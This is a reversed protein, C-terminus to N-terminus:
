YLILLFTSIHIVKPTNCDLPYSTDDEDFCDWDSQSHSFSLTRNSLSLQRKSSGSVNSNDNTSLGNANRNNHAEDDSSISTPVTDANNASSNSRTQLDRAEKALRQMHQLLAEQALEAERKQRQSVSYLPCSRVSGRLSPSDQLSRTSSYNDHPISNFNTSNNETTSHANMISNASTTNFSVHSNYSKTPSLNIIDNSAPREHSDQQLQYEDHQDSLCLKLTHTLEESHPM